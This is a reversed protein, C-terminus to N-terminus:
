FQRSKKAQELPLTLIGKETLQERALESGTRLYRDYLRLLGENSQVASKQSIYTLVDVYDIFRMSFTSYVKALGDDTTVSALDRYAAGGMDVYYDVDVIKRNLSEAFFGSIYLARDGLKKLLEMRVIPESQNALLYTEALTNARRQGNEDHEPEFLNKADLYHQLLHVLYSEARPFAELRRQRLGEKVIESFFENPSVFLSMTKLRRGPNLREVSSEM